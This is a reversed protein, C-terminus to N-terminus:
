GDCLWAYGNGCVAKGLIGAVNVSRSEANIAIVMVIRAVIATWAFASPLEYASIMCLTLVASTMRKGFKATRRM